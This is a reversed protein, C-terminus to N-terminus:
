GAINVGSNNAVNMDGVQPLISAWAERLDMMLGKVEILPDSLKKMNGEKIKENFYMYLSFLNKAIDGGKEFDLGAMLETVIDQSKVLANHIQDLQKSQGGILEAAYGLQKIAEDYLMIVLKGQSATKVRTQRYANLQSNMVSM